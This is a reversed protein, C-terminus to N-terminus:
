QNDCFDLNLIGYLTSYCCSISFPFTSDSIIKINDKLTLIIHKCFYKNEKNAHASGGWRHSLFFYFLVLLFHIILFPLIFRDGIKQGQLVKVTKNCILMHAINAPM